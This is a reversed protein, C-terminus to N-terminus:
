RVLPSESAVNAQLDVTTGSLVTFGLPPTLSATKNGGLDEVLLHMEYGGDSLDGITIPLHMYFDRRRRRAIDEVVPFEAQQVAHGASDYIAYSGRLRTHFTSGSDAAQEISNYNEVECYVLVRQGPQFVDSAFTKFQGYGSVETCFAGSEIKLNALSELQAIAQRLHVLTEHATQHQRLDQDLGDDLNSTRMMTTIAELQHQWFQNESPTFSRQEQAIDGMQRSLVDLLRLNIELSTRTESNIDSDLQTQVLQITQQLRSRWTVANLKMVAEVGVPPVDSQADNNIPEEDALPQDFSASINQADIVVTEPLPLGAPSFNVQGFNKKAVMPEAAAHEVAMPALSRRNGIAPASQSFQNESPLNCGHCEPNECAVCKKVPAFDNKDINAIFDPQKLSAIRTDSIEPLPKKATPLMLFPAKKKQFVVPASQPQAQKLKPKRQAPYSLRSARQQQLTPDITIGDIPEATITKSQITKPVTSAIKAQTKVPAFDAQIAEVKPMPLKPSEAKESAEISAIVPSQKKRDVSRTYVEGQLSADVKPGNGNTIEQSSAMPKAPTKEVILPGAPLLPSPKVEVIKPATANTPLAMSPVVETPVVETPVVETPVAQSALITGVIPRLVERQPEVSTVQAITSESEAAPSSDTVLMIRQAPARHNNQAVPSPDMAFSTEADEPLPDPVIFRGPSVTPTSAPEVSKAIQEKAATLPQSFIQAPPEAAPNFQEVDQDFAVQAANDITPEAYLTTRPLDSLKPPRAKLNQVQDRVPNAESRAEAVFQGNDSNRRDRATKTSTADASKLNSEGRLPQPPFPIRGQSLQSNTGLRSCGAAFLVCASALIIRNCIQRYNKAYALRQHNFDIRIPNRGLM